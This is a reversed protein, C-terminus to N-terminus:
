KENKEGDQKQENELEFSKDDLDFKAKTLRRMLYFTIMLTAYIIASITGALVDDCILYIIAAIAVYSSVHTLFLSVSPGRSVHDYATPLYLGTKAAFKFFEKINTLM